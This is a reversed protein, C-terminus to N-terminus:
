QAPSFSLLICQGLEERKLRSRMYQQVMRPTCHCKEATEAVSLVPEPQTCEREVQEATEIIELLAAPDGGVDAPQAEVGGRARAARERRIRSRANRAMADTDDLNFAPLGRDSAARAAAAQRDQDHQLMAMSQIADEVDEPCACFDVASLVGAQMAEPLGDFVRSTCPGCARVRRLAAANM